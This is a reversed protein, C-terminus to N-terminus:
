NCIKLKTYQFQTIGIELPLKTNYRAQIGPKVIKPLIVKCYYNFHCQTYNIKPFDGNATPISNQTSDLKTPNHVPLAKWFM